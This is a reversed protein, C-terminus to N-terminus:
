CWRAHDVMTDPDLIWWGRAWRACPWSSPRASWSSPPAAGGAPPCNWASSPVTSYSSWTRTKHSTQILFSVNEVFEGTKVLFMSWGSTKNVTFHHLIYIRFQVQICTKTKINQTKQHVLTENTFHKPFTTNFSISCHPGLIFRIILEPSTRGLYGYFGCNKWTFRFMGTYCIHADCWSARTSDSCTCTDVMQCDCGKCMDCNHTYSLISVWLRFLRCNKNKCKHDKVRM